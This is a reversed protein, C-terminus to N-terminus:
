DQLPPELESEITVVASLSSASSVTVWVVHWSNSPWDLVWTVDDTATLATGDNDIPKTAGNVEENAAFSGTGATKDITISTKGRVSVKFGDGDATRVEVSKGIRTSM